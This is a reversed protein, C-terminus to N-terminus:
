SIGGRLDGDTLLYLHTDGSGDRKSQVYDVCPTHAAAMTNKAPCPLADTLPSNGSLSWAVTLNQIAGNGCLTKDCKFIVTAPSTPSYPTAPQAFLTQLVAGGTKRPGEFCPAYTSSTSPDCAGVSLLVHPGAGQPLVVVACVPASSTAITCNQDGGVGEQFGTDGSETRADAVVDFRFDKVDPVYSDGAAVTSPKKGAVAVTLVVQNAAHAISTQLSYTEAGKPVVVTAPTFAPTGNNSTGSIALTTDNNFAALAGTTDHFSVEISFTGGARVFATPAAGPPLTGLDLDALSEGTVGDIVIAVPAPSVARASSAFLGGLATVLCAVLLVGLRRRSPAAIFPM